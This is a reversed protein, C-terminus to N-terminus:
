ITDLRPVLLFDISMVLYQRFKCAFVRREGGWEARTDALPQKWTLFSRHNIWVTSARIMCACAARASPFSGEVISFVVRQLQDEELRSYFGINKNFSFHMVVTRM